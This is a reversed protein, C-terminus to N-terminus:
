LVIKAMDTDRKLYALIAYTDLAIGDAVPDRRLNYIGEERWVPVLADTVTRARDFLRQAPGPDIHAQELMLVIFYADLIRYTLDYGPLPSSLCEEPYVFQLYRDEFTNGDYATALYTLGRNASARVEIGDGPCKAALLLLSMCTLLLIRLVIPRGPRILLHGPSRRLSFYEVFSMEIM